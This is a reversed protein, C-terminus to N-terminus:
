VHARGIKQEIGAQLLIMQQNPPLAKLEAWPPGLHTKAYDSITKRDQPTALLEANAGLQSRNLADIMPQSLQAVAPLALAMM